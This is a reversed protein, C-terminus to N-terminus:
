FLVIIGLVTLCIVMISLCCFVGLVFELILYTLRFKSYYILLKKVKPYKNLKENYDKILLISFYYLSINFFCLFIVSSLIFFSFCLLLLPDSGLNDISINLSTLNDRTISLLKGLVVM